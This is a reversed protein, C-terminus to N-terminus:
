SADRGHGGETAFGHGGETAYDHALDFYRRALELQQKKAAEGLAPDASTFCAIKGRVYARYCCYFDVLELFDTDGSREVYRDRVRRALEGEGQFDLDMVLFALDVAVDSCRFRENFEICDFIVPPDEFFINGLHLDGHCERIWGQSIRRQFLGEKEQYFSDTFSRIEDRRTRPIAVGVYGSTQEFNEDTNFKVTSISGFEDVGPGTKATRYFPVLTDVVSEIKGVTLQGRELVRPGLLSQDLQRMVVVWDVVPGSGNLRPRGDEVTVPEVRLYVSPALRRNLELEKECCKRRLEPTTFDLFGFNVPKKLKYACTGTLFVSSIHTQVFEVAEVKHPYFAPDKMSDVLISHDVATM